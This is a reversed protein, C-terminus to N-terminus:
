RVRTRDRSVLLGAALLVVGIAVYLIVGAESVPTTSGNVIALVACVAVGIFCFIGLFIRLHRNM